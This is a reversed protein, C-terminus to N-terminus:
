RTWLIEGFTKMSLWILGTWVKWAFLQCTSMSNLPVYISKMYVINQYQIADPNFGIVWLVVVSERRRDEVNFSFDFFTIAKWEGQGASVVKRLHIASDWEGRIGKCYGSCFRFQLTATSFTFTAGRGILRRKRLIRHWEGPLNRDPWELFWCIRGGSSM